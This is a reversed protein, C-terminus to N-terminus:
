GRCAPGCDDPGVAIERHDTRFREAVIRAFPREDQDGPCGISFTKVGRRAAGGDPGGPLEFRPRRLALRRGAGGGGPSQRGGRRAAAAARGRSRRQGSGGSGDPREPLARAADRGLTRDGDPSRRPPPVGRRVPHPPRARVGAAAPRRARASRDPTAHRDRAAAGQGRFRVLLPGPAAPLVAAEHGGSGAGAAPTRESRGLPRPRVHRAVPRARSGGRRSPM